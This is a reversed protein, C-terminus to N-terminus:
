NTVKEPMGRPDGSMELDQKTVTIIFSFCSNSQNEFSIKHCFFLLTGQIVYCSCYNNESCYPEFAFPIWAIEPEILFLIEIQM